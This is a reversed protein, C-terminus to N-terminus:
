ESLTYENLLLFTYKTYLRLLGCCLMLLGITSAREISSTVSGMLFAFINRNSISLIRRFNSVWFFFHKLSCSLIRNQLRRLADRVDRSLACFLKCVRKTPSIIISSLFMRRTSNHISPITLLSSSNALSARLSVWTAFAVQNKQPAVTYFFAPIEVPRTLVSLEM